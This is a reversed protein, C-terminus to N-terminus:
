AYAKLGIDAGGVSGVRDLMAERKRFALMEPSSHCEVLIAQAMGRFSATSVRSMVESVSVRASMPLSLNRRVLKSVNM